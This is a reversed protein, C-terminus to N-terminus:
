HIAEPDNFTRELESMFDILEEFSPASGIIMEGMAQYDERLVDIVTKPPKLKFSGPAMTDYGYGSGPYFRKKSSVIEMLLSHNLEMCASGDLMSYVDYYHRSYRGPVKERTAVTHLILIKEYLARESSIATVNTCCDQIKDTYDFIYPSVTKREPIGWIGRPGLELLVAKSISSTGFLAPYNFLIGSDTSIITFRKGIVDEFYEEMHPILMRDIFNRTREVMQNNFGEQKKRSGGVPPGGMDYGLLRWDILIDVDESFRSIAQYCKSLCTGGKFLFHRKWPSEHFLYRLIFVVWADKEVMAVPMGTEKSAKLCLDQLNTTTSGMLSYFNEM